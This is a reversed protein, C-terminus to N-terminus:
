NTLRESHPAFGGFDTASRSGFVSAPTANCWKPEGRADFDWSPQAASNRFMWTSWM